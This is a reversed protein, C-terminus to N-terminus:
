LERKPFPGSIDGTRVARGTDVADQCGKSKEENDETINVNKCKVKLRYFVVKRRSFMM